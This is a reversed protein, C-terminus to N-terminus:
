LGDPKAGKPVKFEVRMGEQENKSLEIGYHSGYLIKLRTNINFLGISQGEEMNVQDNDRLRQNLQSITKEDMGVGNDEVSVVVDMAQCYIHIAIRKDGIKEKLGHKIANEVIPQISIRPITYQRSEEEIDFTYTVEHNMRVNMVFLFNKLHTIEDDISAHPNGTGLSYRFIDSLSQSLDSVLDCEYVSAISSMTDLTNYLFHPNIQAQLANYEAKNLLLADKYKEQMLDDIENLMMNFERSLEAIEDNGKEPARQSTEGRRIANIISMLGELPKLLTNTWVITFVTIVSVLMIVIIILTRTLAKQNKELYSIPVLSYVNLHYKQQSMEFLMSQRNSSYYFPQSANSEIYTMYDAILEDDQEQQVGMSTVVQDGRPQLWTYADEASAYKEMITLLAKTDIDCIIYGIVHNLNTSDYIKLGMRFINRQRSLNYYSSTLVYQESDQIFARVAEVNYTEEDEFIDQPYNHKPTVTRRYSSVIQNDGDYIYLAVLNDSTQFNSIAMEGALRYYTSKLEQSDGEERLDHMFMEENYIKVMNNEISNLFGYIENQMNGLRSMSEEKSQEFIVESSTRIFFYSQIMIASLVCVLCLLLVKGRMKM